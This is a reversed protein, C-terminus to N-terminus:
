VQQRQPILIASMFQSASQLRVLVTCCQATNIANRVERVSCDNIRSQGCARFMHNKARPKLADASTLVARLPPLGCILVVPASGGAQYSSATAQCTHHRIM